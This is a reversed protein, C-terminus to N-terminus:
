SVKVSIATANLMHSLGKLSRPEELCVLSTEHHNASSIDV